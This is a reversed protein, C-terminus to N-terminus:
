VMHFVVLTRASLDCFRKSLPELPRGGHVKKRTVNSGFALTRTAHTEDRFSISFVNVLVHTRCQENANPM